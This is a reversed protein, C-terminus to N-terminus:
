LNTYIINTNDGNQTQNLTAAIASISHSVTRLQTTYDTATYTSIPTLETSSEVQALLPMQKHHVSMAEHMLVIFAIFFVQTKKHM